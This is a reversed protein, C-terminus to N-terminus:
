RLLILWCNPMVRIKATMNVEGCDELDDQYLIIEDFFLIPQTKDQLMDMNIGSVTSKTMFPIQSDLQRAM